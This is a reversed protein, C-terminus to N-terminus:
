IKWNHKVILDFIRDVTAAPEKRMQRKFFYLNDYANRRNSGGFIAMMLASSWHDVDVLNILLDCCFYFFLLCINFIIKAASSCLRRRYSM